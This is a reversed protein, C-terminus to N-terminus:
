PKKPTRKASALSRLDETAKARGAEEAADVRRVVNVEPTVNARAYVALWAEVAAMLGVVQETTWDLGFGVAALITMRVATSILTPESGLLRRLATM